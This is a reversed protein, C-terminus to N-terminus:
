ANKGGAKQNIGANCAESNKHDHRSSQAFADMQIYNVEYHIDRAESKRYPM